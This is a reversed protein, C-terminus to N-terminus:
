SKSKLVATSPWVRGGCCRRRTSVIAGVHFVDDSKARGLGGRQSPSSRNVAISQSPRVRLHPKLTRHPGRCPPTQNGAQVGYLTCYICTRHSEVTPQSTTTCAM